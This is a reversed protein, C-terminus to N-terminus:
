GLDDIAKRGREHVGARRADVDDEAPPAPATPPAPPATAAPADAAPPGAAARAEDLKARLDAAAPSVPAPSADARRRRLFARLGFGAAVLALLRKV